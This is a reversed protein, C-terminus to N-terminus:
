SAACSTTRCRASSSGNRGDDDRGGGDRQRDGGRRGPGDGRLASGHPRQAADASAVGTPERRGPQRDLVRRLHRRLRQRRYRRGRSGLSARRALRKLQTRCCRRTPRSSSIISGTTRGPGGSRRARARGTRRGGCDAAGDTTAQVLVGVTFGGDMKGVRRSSTGIGGKFRQLDHRYRRRRQGGGGTRGEGGDAGRM